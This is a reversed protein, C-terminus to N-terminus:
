YRYKKREKKEKEEVSKLSDKVRKVMLNKSKDSLSKIKKLAEKKNRAPLHLRSYAKENYTDLILEFGKRGDFADDIYFFMKSKSDNLNYKNNLKNLEDKIKYYYKKELRRSLPKYYKDM